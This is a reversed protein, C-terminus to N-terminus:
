EEEFFRNGCVCQFTFPGQRRIDGSGCRPCVQGWCLRRLAASLAILGQSFSWVGHAPLYFPTRHGGSRAVVSNLAESVGGSAETRCDVAMGRKM